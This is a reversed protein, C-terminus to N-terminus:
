ERKAGSHVNMHTALGSPRPFWKKCTLCQHMKPKRSSSRARRTARAPCEMDKPPLNLRLKTEQPPTILCLAPYVSSSGSPVETAPFPTSRRSSTVVPSKPRPSVTSVSTWRDQHADRFISREDDPEQGSDSDSGSLYVVVDQPREHLRPNVTALIPTAVTPLTTQNFAEREPSFSQNADRPELLLSSYSQTEGSPLFVEPTPGTARLWSRGTVIGPTRGVGTQLPWPSITSHDPTGTCREGKGATTLYHQLGPDNQSPQCSSAICPHTNSLLGNNFGLHFPQSPAMIPGTLDLSPSDFAFPLKRSVQIFPQTPHCRTSPLHQAQLQVTRHAIPLVYPVACNSSDM